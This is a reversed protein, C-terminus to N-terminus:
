SYIDGIFRTSYGLPTLKLFDPDYKQGRIFIYEKPKKGKECSESCFGMKRWELWEVHSFLNSCNKCVIM